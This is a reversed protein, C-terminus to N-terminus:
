GGINQRRLILEASDVGCYNGSSGVIVALFSGLFDDVNLGIAGHTGKAVSTTVPTPYCVDPKYEIREDITPFGFGVSLPDVTSGQNHYILSARQVNGLPVVSIVRDVFDVALTVPPTDYCTVGQIVQSFAYVIRREPALVAREACSPREDYVVLGARCHWCDEVYHTYVSYYPEGVEAVNNDGPNGAEDHHQGSRRFDTDLWMRPDLGVKSGFGPADYAPLTIPAAGQAQQSLFILDLFNFRTIGDNPGVPSYDVARNSPNTGTIDTEIGAGVSYISQWLAGVAVVSDVVWGGNNAATSVWHYTQVGAGDSTSILRLAFGTGNSHREVRWVQNRALKPASQPKRAFPAGRTAPYLETPQIRLTKFDRRIIQGPGLIEPDQDADFFVLLQDVDGTPALSVAKGPVNITNYRAEEMVVPPRNALYFVRESYQRSLVPWVPENRGYTTRVPHPAEGFWITRRKM